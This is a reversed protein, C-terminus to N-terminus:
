RLQPTAAAFAPATKCVPQREDFFSMADSQCRPPQRARLRAAPCGSGFSSIDAAAHSFSFITFLRCLLLDADAFERRLGSFEAAFIFFSFSTIAYHRRMFIIAFLAILLFRTDAFSPAAAAHPAAYHLSSRQSLGNEISMERM